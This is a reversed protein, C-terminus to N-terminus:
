KEKFGHAAKSKEIAERQEDETMQNWPKPPERLLKQLMCKEITKQKGSIGSIFQRTLAHEYSERDCQKWKLAFWLKWQSFEKSPCILKCIWVPFGWTESLKFWTRLSSDSTLKGGAGRRSRREIRM